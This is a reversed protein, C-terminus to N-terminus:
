VKASYAFIELSKGFLPFKHDALHIFLSKNHCKYLLFVLGWQKQEFKVLFIGLFKGLDSVKVSYAFNELSEGFLCLERSM